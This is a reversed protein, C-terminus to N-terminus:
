RVGFLMAAIINYIMLSMIVNPDFAEGEQKHLIDIVKDMASSVLEDM